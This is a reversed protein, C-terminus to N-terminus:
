HFSSNEWLYLPSVNRRDFSMKQWTQIIGQASPQTCACTGATPGTPEAWPCVGQGASWSVEKDGIIVNEELTM